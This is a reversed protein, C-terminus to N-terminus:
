GKKTFHQLATILHEISRNEVLVKEQWKANPEDIDKVEIILYPNFDVAADPHMRIRYMIDEGHIVFMTELM